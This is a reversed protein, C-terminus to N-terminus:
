KTAFLQSLLEYGDVSKVNQALKEELIDKDGGLQRFRDVYAQAAETNGRDVECLALMYLTSQDYPRYRIATEFHRIAKRTKQDFFLKEAGKTFYNRAIEDFDRNEASSETIGLKVQIAIEKEMAVPVGNNKGPMWMYETEELISTILEDVTPSVSNVVEIESLSGDANVTFKVVETGETTEGFEADYKFNNAIYTKLSNSHDAPSYKVATFKPPTVEVDTMMYPPVNEQAYAFISAIMCIFLIKITKM